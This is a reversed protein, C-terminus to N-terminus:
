CADFVIVKVTDEMMEDAKFALVLVRTQLSIHDSICRENELLNNRNLKLTITSQLESYKTEDTLDNSSIM